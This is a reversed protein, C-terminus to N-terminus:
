TLKLPEVREIVERVNKRCIPHNKFFEEFVVKQRFSIVHAINGVFDSPGDQPWLYPHTLLQVRKYKKEQFLKCPCTEYWGQSDSIYKMNEFFAPEYSHRLGDIKKGLIRDVFQNTNHFSVIELPEVGTIETFLRKESECFASIDEWKVDNFEIDLHLGIEASGELKRIVDGVAQSRLNYMASCILFFYSAKIGLDAEISALGTAWEPTYDIDHRLVCLYEEDSRLEAEEFSVFRYGSSLASELIHRYHWLSFDCKSRTM